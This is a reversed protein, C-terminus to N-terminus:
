LTAALKNFVRFHELFVRAMASQTIQFHHSSVSDSTSPEQLLRNKAVKNKRLLERKSKRLLVVLMMFDSPALEYSTGLVM